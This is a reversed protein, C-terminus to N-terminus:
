RVGRLAKSFLDMRRGHALVGTALPGAPGSSGTEGTRRTLLECLTGAYPVVRRGIDRATADSVALRAADTRAPQNRPTTAHRLQCVQAADHM